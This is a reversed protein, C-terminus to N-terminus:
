TLFIILCRVTLAPNVKRMQPSTVNRLKDTLRRTPRVPTIKAPTRPPAATGDPQEFVERILQCGATGSNQAQM